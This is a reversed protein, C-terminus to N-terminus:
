PKDIQLRERKLLRLGDIALRVAGDNLVQCSTKQIEIVEGTMDTMDCNSKINQNTNKKM